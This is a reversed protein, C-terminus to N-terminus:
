SARDSFETLRKSNCNRGKCDVRGDNDSLSLGPTTLITDIDVELIISAHNNVWLAFHFAGGDGAWDSLLGGIEPWTNRRSGGGDHLFLPVSSEAAAAAACM